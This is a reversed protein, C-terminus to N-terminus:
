VGAAQAFALIEDEIEALYLHGADTLMQKGGVRQIHEPDPMVWPTVVQEMYEWRSHTGNEDEIEVQKIDWRVLLRAQGNRIRDVGIADPETASFVLRAM